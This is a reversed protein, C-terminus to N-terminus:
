RSADQAHLKGAVATVGVPLCEICNHSEVANAVLIDLTGGWDRDPLLVRTARDCLLLKNSPSGPTQKGPSVPHHHIVSSAPLPRARFLPVACM